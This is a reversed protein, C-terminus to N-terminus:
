ESRKLRRAASADLFWVSGGAPRVRGAPLPEELELVRYAAEAKESGAVIFIVGAAANLVPLTLTVRPLGDPSRHVPAVAAQNEELAPDGSFLSATHGDAGMGLLVLDFRPWGSPGRPVHAAIRAAYEEAIAALDGAGIRPAHVRAPDVPVHDLLAERVMRVNSRPDGGHVWREDGFFVDLAAWPVRDPWPPRALAEYAARPTTGGALAVAARGSIAVAAMLTEAFVEAAGRAQAERSPFVRVARRSGTEM